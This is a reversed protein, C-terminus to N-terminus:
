RNDFSYCWRLAAVGREGIEPHAERFEAAARDAMQLHDAVELHARTSYFEKGLEVIRPVLLAGLVDGFRGTVASPAPRPWMTVDYGAWVAIAETLTEDIEHATEDM